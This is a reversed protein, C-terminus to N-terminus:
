LRECFKSLTSDDDGHGFWACWASVEGSTNHDLNYEWDRVVITLSQGNVRYTLDRWPATQNSGVQAAAFEYKKYRSFVSFQAHGFDVAEICTEGTCGSLMVSATFLLLIWCNKIKDTIESTSYM